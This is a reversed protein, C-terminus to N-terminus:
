IEVQRARETVRVFWTALRVADRYARSSKGARPYLGPKLPTFRHPQCLLWSNSEACQRSWQPLRWPKALSEASLVPTGSNEDLPVVEGPEREAPILDALELKQDGIGQRVPCSHKQRRAGHLRVM